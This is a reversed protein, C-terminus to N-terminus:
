RVWVACLAAAVAGWLLLATSSAKLAVVNYRMLVFSVVCAYVFFAFAGAVMSHAETSIYAAGHRHMTLPITALAITPAAAFTGGLSEPKIIDGIIAFASVILGGLLFRFLMEEM